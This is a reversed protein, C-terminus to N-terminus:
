KRHVMMAMVGGFAMEMGFSAPSDPIVIPIPIGIGGKVAALEENTLVEVTQYNFNKMTLHKLINNIKITGQL